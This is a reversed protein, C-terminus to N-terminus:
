VQLTLLHSIIAFIKYSMEYAAITYIQSVISAGMVGYTWYTIPNPQFPEGIFNHGILQLAIREWQFFCREIRSNPEM